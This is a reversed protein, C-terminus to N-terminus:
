FTRRNRWMCFDSKIIPKGSCKMKIVWNKHHFIKIAYLLYVIGKEKCGCEPCVLASEGGTGNVFPGWEDIKWGSGYDGTITCYKFEKYETCSRGKDGSKWEPNCKGLM